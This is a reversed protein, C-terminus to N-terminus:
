GLLLVVTLVMAVVGLAAAAVLAALMSPLPARERMAKEVRAWRVAAFLMTGAGLLMLAVVIANRLPGHAPLGLSSLAVASALLALATRLWALFTRENAMSFRPDPEEGGEYVWRPRRRDTVVGMTACRDDPAGVLGGDEQM